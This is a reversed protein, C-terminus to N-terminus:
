SRGEMSASSGNLLLRRPVFLRFAGIYKLAELLDLPMRRGAEIEEARAGIEHAMDRIDALLREAREGVPPQLAVRANM